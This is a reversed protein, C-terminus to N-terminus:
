FDDEDSRDLINEIGKQLNFDEFVNVLIEILEYSSDCFINKDLMTKKAKSIRALM